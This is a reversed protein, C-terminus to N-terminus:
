RSRSGRQPTARARHNSRSMRVPASAQEDLEVRSAGGKLRLRVAVRDPREIRLDNAGGTLRVPVVARPAGLELRIRDAGGTLQLSRLDVASLDARAKSMGGHIEVTWPIMPNLSIHAGRKRWDIIDRMGDRYAILVTGDRVRVMPQKGEFRARFLEAAAAAGDLVLDSAGSRVLLRAQGLAGLPARHVGRDALGGPTERVADARTKSPM